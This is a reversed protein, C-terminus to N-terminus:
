LLFGEAQRAKVVLEATTLKNRAAIKAELLAPGDPEHHKCTRVEIGHPNHQVLGAVGPQGFVFSAGSICEPFDCVPDKGTEPPHDACHAHDHHHHDHQSMPDRM